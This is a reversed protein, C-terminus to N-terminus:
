TTDGPAFHQLTSMIHSYKRISFIYVFQLCVELGSCAMIRVTLSQDSTFFIDVSNEDECHSLCLRCMGDSVIANDSTQMETKM